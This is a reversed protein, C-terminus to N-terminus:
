VHLPNREDVVYESFGCALICVIFLLASFGTIGVIISIINIPKNGSFLLIGCTTIFVVVCTLITIYKIYSLCKKQSDKTCIM